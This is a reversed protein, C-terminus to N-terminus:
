PTGPWPCSPPPWRWASCWRRRQRVPRTTLAVGLVFVALALGWALAEIRNRRALTIGIQPNAGLSSFTLLQRQDMGAQEVDIKLSRFGSLKGQKYAPKAVTHVATAGFAM